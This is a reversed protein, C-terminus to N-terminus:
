LEEEVCRLTHRDNGGVDEGSVRIREEEMNKEVAIVDREEINMSGKKILMSQHRTSGSLQVEQHLLLESTVISDRECFRGHPKGEDPEESSGEGDNTLHTILGTKNGDKVRMQTCFIHGQGLPEEALGKGRCSNGQKSPLAFRLRLLATPMIFQDSEWLAMQLTEGNKHKVGCVGTLLVCQGERSGLRIRKIIRVCHAFGNASHWPMLRGGPSADGLWAGSSGAVNWSRLNPNVTIFTRDETLHVADVESVLHIEPTPAKVRTAAWYGIGRAECCGTVLVRTSPKLESTAALREGPQIKVLQIIHIKSPASM